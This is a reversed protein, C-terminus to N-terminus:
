PIYLFESTSLLTHCFRALSLEDPSLSSYREAVKQLTDDPKKEGLGAERRKASEEAAKAALKTAGARASERESGAANAHSRFWELSASMEGRDPERGLVLRFATAIQAELSDAAALRITRTAIVAAQELVFADHLMVLSQAVVASPVRRSNQTTVTPQGFAALMTPHYNRRALLYLSRRSTARDKPAITGDPKGETMVPPGGLTLDLRGSAALVTDRVMESDLQRLRQRWLLDNAPDVRAALDGHSSIDASAQRYTTSLLLTRLVPKLQWENRQLEGALWELLEPHTPKTGSVGLNDSTAVIGSGFLQQWIRNAWARAVLASAPTGPETLWRALALRRGSTNAPLRGADTSSFVAAADSAALVRFYGPKAAEGPTDLSGRKLVHVEPPSGTDFAAHLKGYARRQKEIVAIEKDLAASADKDSQPLAADVEAPKLRYQDGFKSVLYHQIESRKLHPVRFARKLDLRIEEPLPAFKKEYLKDETPFRMERQRDKLKEIQADLVANHKDVEERQADPVDAVFRQKPTLWRGPNYVGAFNAVFGYYDEQSIPELKHAHCKACQMTLGLLNAAVIEGTRQLTDHRERPTNIEDEDTDDMALRLFGTPVLAAQITATIDTADRWAILEDGALQEILFRDYPLDRNFSDVVYDRYRWRGEALKITGIDNDIGHVDAYGAADLWHRAWREGFQPSALLRDVLRQYSDTRTDALFEAQQELTPPLGMLDFSARRLLAARGADPSFALKKSELRALVFADVPTRVRETNKVRPLPTPHLRQFAWHNAADAFGAAQPKPTEKQAFADGVAFSAAVLFLLLSPGHRRQM